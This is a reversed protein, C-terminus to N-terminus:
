PLKLIIALVEIAQARTESEEFDFLEDEGDEAGYGYDQILEFEEALGAYDKETDELFENVEDEHKLLLDMLQKDTMNELQPETSM